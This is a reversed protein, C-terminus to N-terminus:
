RILGADRMADRQRDRSRFCTGMAPDDRDSLCGVTDEPCGCGQCTKSSMPGCDAPKHIRVDPLDASREGPPSVHRWASAAGAVLIIWILVGIAFVGYKEVKTM